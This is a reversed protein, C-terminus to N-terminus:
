IIEEKFVEVEEALIMGVFSNLTICAAAGERNDFPDRNKRVHLRETVESFFFFRLSRDEM